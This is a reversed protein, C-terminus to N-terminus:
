VVLTKLKGDDKLNNFKKNLNKLKDDINKTRNLINSAKQILESFMCDAHEGLSGIQRIINASTLNALIEFENPEGNPIKCQAINIPQIYHKTFPM